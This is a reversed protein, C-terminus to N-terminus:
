CYSKASERRSSTPASLELELSDGHGPHRHGTSIVYLLWVGAKSAMEMVEAHPAARLPLQRM